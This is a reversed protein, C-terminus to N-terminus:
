RHVRREGCRLAHKAHEIEVIIDFFARSCDRESGNAAADSVLLHGERVVALRNQSIDIQRNRRPLDHREDAGAAGSLRRQDIKERTKVINELSADRDITM